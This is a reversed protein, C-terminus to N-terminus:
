QCSDPCLEGHNLGYKYLKWAETQQIESNKNMFYNDKNKIENELISWDDIHHRKGGYLSDRTPVMVISTQHNVYQGRVSHNTDYAIMYMRVGSITSNPAKIYDSLVNFAVTDFWVAKSLKDNIIGVPTRVRRQYLNMYVKALSDSILINGIGPRTFDRQNYIAARPANSTTTDSKETKENTNNNCSFIIGTFFIVMNLFIIRKM